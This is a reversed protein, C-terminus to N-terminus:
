RSAKGTLAKRLRRMQKTYQPGRYPGCHLQYISWVTAYEQNDHVVELQKLLAEAAARLEGRKM